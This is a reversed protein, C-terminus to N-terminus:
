KKELSFLFYSPIYLLVNEKKKKNGKRHKKRKYKTNFNKECINFINYIDLYNINNHHLNVDNMEIYLNNKVYNSISEINFNHKQLKKLITIQFESIRNYFINQLMKYKNIDFSNNTSNFFSNSQIKSFDTLSNKKDNINLINPFYLTNKYFQSFIDDYINNSRIDTYDCNLFNYQEITYYPFIPNRLYEIMEITKNYDKHDTNNLNIFNSNLLNINIMKPSLVEDNIGGKDRHIALKNDNDNRDEKQIYRFGNNDVNNFCMFFPDRNQMYLKVPENNSSCNYYNKKQQKNEEEKETIMKIYIEKVYYSLFIYLNKKSYIDTGFSNMHLNNKNVRFYKMYIHFNGYYRIIINFLNYFFYKRYPNNKDLTIISFSKENPIKKEIENLEEYEKIKLKPKIKFVSDKNLSHIPIYFSIYKKINSLFRKKYYESQIITPRYGKTLYLVSKSFNEVSKDWTYPRLYDIIKFIIVHNSIDMHILLSYDMIDQSCLFDSDEKLSDMLYKYDKYELNIVKSKIYDRFNDDYLVTYGKYSNYNDVVFHNYKEISNLTELNKNYLNDKDIFDYKEENINKHKVIHKSLNDKNLIFNKKKRLFYLTRKLYYLHNKSQIKKKRAIKKKKKRKLNLVQKNIALYMKTNVIIEKMFINEIYRRGSNMETKKTNSENKSQNIENNARYENQNDIEVGKGMKLVIYINRFKMVNQSTEFLKVKYYYNLGCMMKKRMNIYAWHMIQENGQNSNSSNNRSINHTHMKKQPFVNQIGNSMGSFVMESNLIDEGKEGIADLQRSKEGKNKNKYSRCVLKIKKENKLYKNFYNLNMSIGSSCNDSRDNEDDQTIKCTNLSLNYNKDFISIGKKNQKILKQINKKKRAGKIDFILIKSNHNEIKINELIIFSKLTKRNTKKITIQYLGFLFCMASKQSKFFINSFYQFFEKYRTLFSKFEHTNIEKIIYKDDYTKIFHKKKHDFNIYNSKILSILFSEEKKCLHKRLYYFQLPFYISVTINDNLVINICDDNKSNIFENIMNNKLSINLLKNLKSKIFKDIDKDYKQNVEKNQKILRKSTNSKRRKLIRSDTQFQKCKKEDIIEQINENQLNTNGREEEEFKKNGFISFSSINNEEKNNCTQPGKEQMIKEEEAKYINKLKINYENSILSHFILNAIDNQNFLFVFNEKTIDEEGLIGNIKVMEENKPNKANRVLDVIKSIHAYFLKKSSNENEEKNIDEIYKKKRYNEINYIYYAEKMYLKYVDYSHVFSFGMNPDDTTESVKNNYIGIKYYNRTMWFKNKDKSKKCRRCKYKELKNIEERWKKIKKNTKKNGNKYVKAYAKNTQDTCNNAKLNRIKEFFFSVDIKRERKSISKSIYFHQLKSKTIFKTMKEINKQIKFNIKELLMIYLSFFIDMNLTFHNKKLSTIAYFYIKKFIFILKKKYYKMKKKYKKFIIFKKFLIDKIKYIDNLIYSINNNTANLGYIVTEKNTQNNLIGNLEGINSYSLTFTKMYKTFNYEERKATLFKNYSTNRITNHPMKSFFEESQEKKIGVQISSTSSAGRSKNYEKNLKENFPNINERIMIENLNYNILSEQLNPKIQSIHEWDKEIEKFHEDPKNMNNQIIASICNLCYMIDNSNIFINKNLLNLIFNISIYFNCFIRKIIFLMNFFVLISFNSIKLYKCKKCNNKFYIPSYSNNFNEKMNKERNKEYLHKNKSRYYNIACNYILYKLSCYMPLMSITFLPFTEIINYINFNNYMVNLWKSRGINLRKSTKGSSCFKNHDREKTICMCPFYYFVNNHIINKIYKEIYKLVIKKTNNKKKNLKQKKRQRQIINSDKNERVDIENQISAIKCIYNQQAQFFIKINKFCIEYSNYKGNHHCQVNKYNEGHIITLLFESFTFNINIIKKKTAYCKNCIITMIKDDDINENQIKKMTILIGKLLIQICIQHYVLYNSCCGLPCIMTFSLSHMMEVFQQISIDCIYKYNFFFNYFINEFTFYKSGFFYMNINNYTNNIHMYNPCIFYTIMEINKSIELNYCYFLMNKAIIKEVKENFKSEIQISAGNHLSSNLICQNNLIDDDNIIIDKYTYQLYTTNIINLYYYIYDYNSEYNKMFSNFIFYNVIDIIKNKDANHFFCHEYNNYIQEKIIDNPKILKYLIKMRERILPSQINILHFLYYMLNIPTVKIKQVNYFLFLSSLSSIISNNLKEYFNICNKDSIRNIKINNLYPRVIIRGMYHNLYIQKYIHFTLFICYKIIKKVKKIIIVNKLHNILLKKKNENKEKGGFSIKKEKHLFNYDVIYDDNKKKYYISIFNELINERKIENKFYYELSNKDDNSNRIKEIHTDKAKNKKDEQSARLISTIEINKNDPFNHNHMDSINSSDRINQKGFICLTIFNNNCCVYVNKINKKYKQIKFYNAKAIYSNNFNNFNDCCLVKTRLMKSLRFINKKKISTFFYIKKSMLLKKIYFHLEGHVLIINVNKSSFKKFVYNVYNYNNHYSNGLEEYQATKETNMLLIKPNKIELNDFYISCNSFVLGQLYFSNKINKYPFYKVKIHNLIDYDYNYYHKSIENIINLVIVYIKKKIGHYMLLNTIVKHFCRNFQMNIKLPFNLNSHYINKYPDHEFFNFFPNFEELIISNKKKKISDLNIPSYFSYVSNDKKKLLKKKAKEFTKKKREEERLNDNYVKYIRESKKIINAYFKNNHIVSYNDKNLEKKILTSTLEKNRRKLYIEANNIHGNKLGAHVNSNGIDNEDNLDANNFAQPLNNNRSENFFPYNLIWDFLKHSPKHEILDNQFSVYKESATEGM